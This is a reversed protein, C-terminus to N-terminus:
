VSSHLVYTGFVFSHLADMEDVSSLLIDTEDASSHMMDTGDICLFHLVNTGFVFSHLADM